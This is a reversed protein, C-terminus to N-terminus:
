RTIERHKQMLMYIISNWFHACSPRKAKLTNPYFCVFCSLSTSKMLSSCQEERVKNGLAHCCHNCNNGNGVSREKFLRLRGTHMDTLPVASTHKAKCANQGIGDNGKYRMFM